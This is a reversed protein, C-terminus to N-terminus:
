VGGSQITDKIKGGGDSEYGNYKKRYFDCDPCKEILCLKGEIKNTYSFLKNKCRPCKKM